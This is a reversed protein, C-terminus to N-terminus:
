DHGGEPEWSQCPPRQVRMMAGRQGEPSAHDGRYGWWPGGRARLVPMTAETFEDHGGEPGWSQCPRRQLGWWPGGEPGWSQCPRRQLRMIAGRKGEPSAHNLPYAVIYAVINDILSINETIGRPNVDQPTPRINSLSWWSSTHIQILKIRPIKNTTIHITWYTAHTYPSRSWCNRVISNRITLLITQCHHMRM